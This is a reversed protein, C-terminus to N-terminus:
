VELKEFAVSCELKVEVLVKDGVETVLVNLGVLRAWKVPLMKGINFEVLKVVTEDLLIVPVRAVLEVDCKLLLVIVDVFILEVVIEEVVLVVFLPQKESWEFISSNIEIRAIVHM